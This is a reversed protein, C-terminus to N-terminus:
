EKPQKLILTDLNKMSRDKHDYGISDFFAYASDHHVLPIEKYERQSVRALEKRFEHHMEDYRTFRPYSHWKDYRKSQWHWHECWRDLSRSVIGEITRIERYWSTDMKIMHIKIPQCNIDNEQLAYVYDKM